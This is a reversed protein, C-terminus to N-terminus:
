VGDHRVGEFLGGDVADVVEEALLGRLVDHHQTEGVRDELRDPVAAVDIVDLNEGALREADFIARAVVLRGTRQAVHDLIM